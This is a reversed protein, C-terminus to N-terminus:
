KTKYVSGKTRYFLSNRGILPLTCSPFSHSVSIKCFSNHLSLFSTTLFHMIHDGETQLQTGSRGYPMCKRGTVCEGRESLGRRATTTFPSPQFLSASGVSSPLFYSTFHQSISLSRKQSDSIGKRITERWVWEWWENWVTRLAGRLHFLARRYPYSSHTFPALLSRVTEIMIKTDDIEVRTGTRDAPSPRTCPRTYYTLDVHSSVLHAYRTELWMSDQKGRWWWRARLATRPVLHIVSIPHM